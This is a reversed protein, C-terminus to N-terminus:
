HNVESSEYPLWSRLGRPAIHGTWGFHMAGSTSVRWRDTKKPWSTHATCQSHSVACRVWLRCTRCCSIPLCWRTTYALIYILCDVDLFICHYFPANFICVLTGRSFNHLIVYAWSHTIRKKISEFFLFTTCLVGCKNNYGGIMSVLHITWFCDGYWMSRRWGEYKLECSIIFCCHLENFYVFMRTCYLNNLPNFIPRTTLM